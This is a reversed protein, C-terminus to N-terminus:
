GGHDLSDFIARVFRPDHTCVSFLDSGFDHSHSCPGGSCIEDLIFVFCFMRERHGGLSGIPDLTLYVTIRPGFVLHEEHVKSSMVATKPLSRSQTPPVFGAEHCFLSLFSSQFKPPAISVRM